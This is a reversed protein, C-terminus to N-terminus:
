AGEYQLIKEASLLILLDDQLRIIGAVFKDKIGKINAPPPQIENQRAEVVDGIQDVLLGVTEKKLIINKSENTIKRQNLGLRIGLDFVTVTSGRLNILGLVYDPAQQVPTIDLVSNIEQVNVIEIGMLNDDIKFTIFQHNDM